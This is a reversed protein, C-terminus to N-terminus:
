PPCGNPAPCNTVCTGFCISNMYFGSCCSNLGHCGTQANPDCSTGCATGNCAYNNCTNYVPNPCSGNACNQAVSETCPMGIGSCGCSPARCQTTPYFCGVDVGDCYGGCPSQGGNTCAPHGTRPQQNAPVPVCTGASSCVQCSGNCPSNCCIGEPSCSLGSQCQADRTCPSGGQTKQALCAGTADCYYGPVCDTDASCPQKCGAAGCVYPSCATPAPAQCSGTASCTGAGTATGMTCMATGCATGTTAANCAGSGNCKGPSCTASAGTGAPCVARPDQNAPVLACTGPPGAPLNCSYCTGTCASNCCVGDVCHAHTCEADVTCSAGDPKLGCSGAM